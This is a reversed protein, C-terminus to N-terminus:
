ACAFGVLVAGSLSVFFLSFMWGHGCLMYELCSHMPWFRRIKSLYFEVGLRRSWM